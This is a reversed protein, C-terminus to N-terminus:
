GARGTLRTGARAVAQDVLRAAVDSLKVHEVNSIRRLRGFAEDNSIGSRGRLIGIAQDIVGRTRLAQSLQEVEARSRALLYASRTVVAVAVAYRLAASDDVDDFANEESAYASLTGVLAPPLSMPAVLVSRIGRLAATPGFDPWPMCAGLCGCRTVQREAIGTLTPGQGLIRQQEELEGVLPSTAVIDVLHGNELVAIAIGDSRSIVDASYEAIRRLTERFPEEAYSLRALDLLRATHDDDDPVIAMASHM